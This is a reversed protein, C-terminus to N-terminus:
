SPEALRDLMARLDDEKLEGLYRRDIELGPRIMFAMPLTEVGYDLYVRNEPDRVVPFTLGFEEAFRKADAETDWINMGVFTYGRGEYEAWLRQILPAESRCPLCWSAWFYLLIPRDDHAAIDFTTGDFAQIAFPPADGVVAEGPQNGGGVGRAMGYATVSLLALVIVAAILMVPQRRVVQAVRPSTM